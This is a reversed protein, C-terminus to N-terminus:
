GDEFEAREAAGLGLQADSLESRFASTTAPLPPRSRRGDPNPAKGGCVRELLVDVGAGNRICRYTWLEVTDGLASAAQRAIGDFATGILLLRVKAEARLGLNPALQLWDKLRASVWARQALGTAILELETGAKGLLIVAVQGQADVAVWDIPADAGLLDEGIIRLAGGLEAMRGRVREHLEARPLSGLLQLEAM